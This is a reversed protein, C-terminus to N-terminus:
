GDIELGTVIVWKNHGQIVCFGINSSCTVTNVDIYGKGSVTSYNTGVDQGSPREGRLLAPMIKNINQQTSEYDKKLQDKWEGAFPHIWTAEYDCM